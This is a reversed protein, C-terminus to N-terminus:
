GAKQHYTDPLYSCITGLYAFANFFLHSLIMRGGLTVRRCAVTFYDNFPKAKLNENPWLLRLPVDGSYKLYGPNVFLLMDFCRLRRHGLLFEILWPDHKISTWGFLSRAQEDAWFNIRAIRDYM